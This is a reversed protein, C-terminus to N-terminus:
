FALKVCIGKKLEEINIMIKHNYM